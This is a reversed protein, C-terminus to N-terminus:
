VRAGYAPAQSRCGRPAKSFALLGGSMSGATGMAGALAEADLGYILGAAIAGGYVGTLGPAHFGLKESSHQTAAGIRFLVECGAVFARLATAGSAGTEQCAAAIVPVLAAGPHVGAGPFRLSDQEFAHVASGNALAAFPAPVRSGASGFIDCPGGGYARAVAAVQRSWPLRAGFVACGITDAICAQARRLVDGPVDVLRMGAAFAALERAATM